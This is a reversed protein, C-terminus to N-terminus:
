KRFVVIQTEDTFGLTRMHSKFKEITTFFKQYHEYASNFNRLATERDGEEAAYWSDCAYKHINDHHMLLEKFVQSNIIRPDTQEGAWKGFKCGKPNNLQTIKLHEIGALNSYVRWTFILHDIQFVRIWDQTTLKSFGRAMDSRATDVYRSIKHMHEGTMMIDHQLIDYSEAMSEISKVFSQTVVTQTSVADVINSVREDILTMHNSMENMDQVSQLVKQNGAELHATTDDVLTMLEGISAQLESVYQVVTDASQTTNSSLEKVQNAVVAFGKGAEGARAAEISANLALLGSQNAIKKVMDIITTIQEIKEHFDQVKVNISKIEDVSEEVATITENMNVVSKRAVDISATTSDKIFGVEDSINTISAELDKSSDTMNQISVNQATVQEIMEKTCSNDGIHEMAENMRMVFNNNSKKFAMIVDNFKDIVQTDTFASTDIQEYNGDIIQQMAELLLAKDQAQTDVANKKKFIM